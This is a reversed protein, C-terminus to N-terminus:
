AVQACLCVERAVYRHSFSLSSSFAGSMGIRLGGGARELTIRLQQRRVLGYYWLALQESAGYPTRLAVAAVEGGIAVVSAALCQEVVSRRCAVSAGFYMHLTYLLCSYILQLCQSLHLGCVTVAGCSHLALSFSHSPFSTVANPLTPVFFGLPQLPSTALREGDWLGVTVVATCLPFLLIPM